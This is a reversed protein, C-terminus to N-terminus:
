EAAEQFQKSKVTEALLPSVHWESVDGHMRRNISARNAERRQESELDEKEAAMGWRDGFKAKIEDVSPRTNAWEQDQERMRRRQEAQREREQARLIPAMEEECARRVEAQNPPWDHRTQVGNRPDTVRAVVAEPYNSLVAAISTLYAEPDDAM